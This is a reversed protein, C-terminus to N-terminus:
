KEQRKKSILNFRGWVGSYLINRIIGINEVIPLKEFERSCETIMMLLINRCESEFDKMSNAKKYREILPNYCKKKIDKEIDDYADLIYIFKGLYFGIKRLGAQWVDDSYAYIEELIKGFCGSVLDIDYTENHEYESLKLLCNRINNCKDPYKNEIDKIQSSILKAYLYKFFKKDDKWDDICKYYTLYISMDASYTIYPNIEYDHKKVPHVICRRCEKCSDEEGYLGTLILALFVADYNLSMRGMFGCREKLANCIGCYYRKYIDYEKFKLEDKNVIVYGFM